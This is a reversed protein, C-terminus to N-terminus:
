LFFNIPWNTGFIMGTTMPGILGSTVASITPTCSIKFGCWVISWFALTVSAAHLQARMKRVGPFTLRVALSLEVGHYTLESSFDLNIKGLGPELGLETERAPKPLWSTILGLWGLIAFLPLFESGNSAGMSPDKAMFPWEVDLKLLTITKSATELSTASTLARLIIFKTLLETRPSVGFNRPTPSEGALVASLNLETKEGALLATPKGSLDM